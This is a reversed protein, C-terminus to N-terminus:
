SLLLIMGTMTHCIQLDYLLRDLSMIRAGKSTKKRFKTYNRGTAMAGWFM